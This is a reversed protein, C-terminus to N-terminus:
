PGRVGITFGIWNEAVPVTWRIETFTGDFQVLGDAERGTLGADTSELPIGGFIV